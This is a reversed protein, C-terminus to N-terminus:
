QYAKMQVHCYYNPRKKMHCFLSVMCSLNLLLHLKHSKFRECTFQTNETQFTYLIENFYIITITRIIIFIHPM